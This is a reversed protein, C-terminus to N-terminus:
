ASKGNQQQAAQAAAMGALFMLTDRRQQSSLEAFQRAINEAEQQQEIHIIDNM